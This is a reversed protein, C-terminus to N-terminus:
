FQLKLAFQMSRPGGQQYQSALTALSANLMQTAQGFTADSYTSDVIGFNPHNLLNFTEARFQLTFPGSLHVERRAALNLQAEGFGRVFNRPADGAANSAAASFAAPNIAKGGPFQSGHLYIPQDPVINLGGGYETGTSSDIVPNGALTVPFPTRTILRADIGWGGLAATVIPQRSAIPLEWSLGGQFNNRVDYDSNGRQLTLETATSGYDIAHSWTYSALAQVGKVVSRQFQVQLAQYNSTVGNPFYQITGFEPNLASLSKEQLGILRRGNSGVYSLTLSQNTGIGQQMSVNWELTYPQQLHEPSAAIVKSTYPPNANVPINLQAATYPITAGTAVQINSFGLDDYGITSIQSLTDYFAGGGARLVTQWGPQTRISWAAGLRPAFNYWPTKWLPTGRPAVSLSSPVNINGLLTYADDGHEETPPPDVDWRLGLSLSLRPHVRWEDQIFAAGENFVPTSPLFRFVYPAAPKGALIQPTTEFLAYPEVNPPELPSIIRRYNIGVSISHNARLIQITDVLNWQRELDATNRVEMESDGISPYLLVVIPLVQQFSGAGMASVLDIPTAGGFNDLAGSQASSARAYGLRFENSFSSSFQSTAGLTYSQANASTSTLAFTPRSQTSSLTDGFRFFVALESGFTHDVRITTSDITSPLSFPAIFQALSPSSSSGYDIGNPVPFANLIPQMAADAQQRMSVDPVYQIAAATPQDLRLGEYAAFFFSRDKGNYLRPISIPGGLTGGFDNQRLAPTPKGYHDNFWDNADFFNNRLYDFLTGHLTNTGARTVLSFQGGPSTGYAASYTSSLVRFEQLADVPILTQTTGLATAGGLSGGTAPGYVGGGNGGSINASVGDVTYFNSETRQGNVSFDGSEGATGNTNQPTQTVVGPTMSILDQFSRGNLPMNAVFKQDIVTGVSADTTNITLGSGDVTVTENKSGVKMRIVVSKNDGVNLTIGTLQTTDFGQREIQLTYHGPMVGPLVFSGSKNTTSNSETGTATNILKVNANPILADSTDQVVGNIASSSQALSPVAVSLLLVLSFICKLCVAYIQRSM